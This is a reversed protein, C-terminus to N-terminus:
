EKKGEGITIFLTVQELEQGPGLAADVRTGLREREAVIFEDLQKKNVRDGVKLPCKERVAAADEPDAGSRRDEVKVEVIKAVYATWRLAGDAPHAEPSGAEGCHVYVGVLGQANVKEVIAGAMRSVEARYLRLPSEPSMLRGMAVKKASPRGLGAPHEDLAIEIDALDAGKLGAKGLGDITISTVYFVEEGDPRDATATGADVPARAGEGNQEHAGEAEARAAEAEARAAQAAAARATERAMVAAMKQTQVAWLGLGGIAAGLVLLLVVLLAWPKMGSDYRMGEAGQVSQYARRIRNMVAMASVSRHAAGERPPSWGCSV